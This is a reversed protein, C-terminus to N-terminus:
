SPMGEWRTTSAMTVHSPDTIPSRRASAALRACASPSTVEPSYSFRILSSGHLFGLPWIASAVEVYGDVPEARARSVLRTADFPQECDRDDPLHQRVPRCLAPVGQLDAEPFVGRAERPVEVGGPCGGQAVVDRPQFVREGHSPASERPTTTGLSGAEGFPTGAAYM